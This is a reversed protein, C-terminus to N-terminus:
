QTGETYGGSAMISIARNRGAFFNGAANLLGSFTIKPLGTGDGEPRWDVDFSENNYCFWGFLTASKTNDNVSTTLMVRHIGDGENVQRGNAGVRTRQNETSPCDVAGRGFDTGVITWAGDNASTTKRIRLIGQSAPVRM